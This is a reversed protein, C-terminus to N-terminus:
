DIRFEILQLARLRLKKAVIGPVENKIRTTVSDIIVFFKEARSLNRVTRNREVMTARDM